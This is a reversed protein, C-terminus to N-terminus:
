GAYFFGDFAEESVLFEDGTYVCTYWDIREVAIGLIKDMSEVEFTVWYLEDGEGRELGTMALDTGAPVTVALADDPRSRDYMLLDVKSTVEWATVNGDWDIYPYFDTIDVIDTENVQYLGVSNWTGLVDWRKRATVTGDGHCIAGDLDYINQGLIDSLYGIEEISTGDYAYFLTEPDDSPGYDSIGVLLRNAADDVNVVTFYGTPTCSWIEVSAEGITLQGAEYEHTVVTVDEGIGDGNLDYRVTTGVPYSSVYRNQQGPKENFDQIIPETTVEDSPVASPVDFSVESTGCGTLFVVFVVVLVWLLRKM